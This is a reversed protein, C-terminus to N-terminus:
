NMCAITHHRDVQRDRRHSFCDAPNAYTCMRAIEINESSSDCALLQAQSIAWFDFYNPKIQFPWFSEPLEQRYNIFEAAQPGLSPSIGALLHPPQCGYNEKMAQVVQSYINQVSGRWGSHVVALAKQLPDYLIMAQCDAHKVM